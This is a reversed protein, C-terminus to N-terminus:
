HLKLYEWYYFNYPEYVVLKAHKFYYGEQEIFKKGQKCQKKAKSRKNKSGKLEVAVGENNYYILILDCLSKRNCSHEALWLGDKLVWKIDRKDEQIQSLNAVLKDLYYDHRESTNM